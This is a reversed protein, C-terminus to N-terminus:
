DSQFYNPNGEYINTRGHAYQDFLSSRGQQPKSPYVSMAIITCLTQCLTLIQQVYKSMTSIFSTCFCNQMVYYYNLQLREFFFNYSGGFVNDGGGGFAGKPHHGMHQM